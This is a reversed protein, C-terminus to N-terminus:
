HSVFESTLVIPATGAAEAANYGSVSVQPFGSYCCVDRTRVTFEERIPAGYVLSAPHLTHTVGECRRDSCSTSVGFGAMKMEADSTAM